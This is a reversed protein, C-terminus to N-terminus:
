AAHREMFSRVDRIMAEVQAGDYEEYQGHAAKNRLDLWATVQKQSLKNYAGAKALAANLTDAKIPRGKQETSIDHRDSLKRLHEELVSGVIVAAADKYNKGVLEDAMEIFDAFIDAHVLEEVSHMYGAQVDARLARLIGALRPIMWGDPQDSENTEYAQSAYTSSATALREVAATARTRMERAERTNGRFWEGYGQEPVHVLPEIESLLADIQEIAAAAPDM